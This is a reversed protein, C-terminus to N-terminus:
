GEIEEGAIAQLGLRIIEMRDKESLDSAQSVRRVFEGKLSIDNLYQSPDLTLKTRDELRFYYYRSQYVTQLYSLDKESEVDLTGTLCFRVIATEPVPHEQLHKEIANRVEQTRMCGTIDIDESVITRSAFPVFTHSCKLTEEDIELLVFGKEGCEDFGRGELAGPYVYVGRADLVGEQYSHLHGLAMYDISCNRFARLNVTDKRGGAAGDALQGHLMVINFRTNKLVLMEDANEQNEETLELGAVAVEALDDEWTPNFPLAYYTWSDSFLRLNKPLPGGGFVNDADHNGRLYFFLVSPHASIIDSVLNATRKLVRQRDFLDGSILVARVGAQEAYEAMRSFTYLIEERRVRAQDPNLFSNMPADLHLDACHILKM